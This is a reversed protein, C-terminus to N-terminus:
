DESEELRAIARFLKKQAKEFEEHNLDTRSLTEEARKRAARAREADIEPRFEATEALIIVRNETVEAYGGSVVMSYTEDGKQYSLTGARMTTLIPAHDFLIGLDGETGPINVQEADDAVILKEPTVISLQLLDAMM